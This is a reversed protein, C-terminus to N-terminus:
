RTRFFTVTGHPQKNHTSNTWIWVRVDGSTTVRGELMAYTPVSVNNDILAFDIIRDPRYEEPLTFLSTFSGGTYNAVTCNFEISVINLQKSIYFTGASNSITQTQTTLIKTLLKKINLM